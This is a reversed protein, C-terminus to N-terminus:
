ATTAKATALDIVKSASAGAAPIEVSAFSWALEERLDAVEARLVAVEQRLGEVEGLAAALEVRTAVLDAEVRELRLQVAVATATSTAEVARLRAVEDELVVVDLSLAAVADSVV